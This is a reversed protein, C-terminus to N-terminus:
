TKFEPIDTWSPYGKRIFHAGKDDLRELVSWAMSTRAVRYWVAIVNDPRLTGDLLCREIDTIDENAFTYFSLTECLMPRNQAYDFYCNVPEGSDPYLWTTANQNRELLWRWYDKVTIM